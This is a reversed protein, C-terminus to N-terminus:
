VLYFMKFWRFKLSKEESSYPSLGVMKIFVISVNEKLVTKRGQECWTVHEASDYLYVTRMKAVLSYVEWPCSCLNRSDKSHSFPHWSFYLADSLNKNFLIVAIKVDKLADQIIHINWSNSISEGNQSWKQEKIKWCIM